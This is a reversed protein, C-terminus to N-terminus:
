GSLRHWVTGAPTDNLGIGSQQLVERLKDAAVYDRRDKAADRQAILGKQRRTLDERGALRLGLLEDALGLIETLRITCDTDVAPLDDSLRALLALVGATDLDDSIRELMAKKMARAARKDLSRGKELPQLVLDGLARLRQLFVVAAGLAEWTFNVQSRYHSQLMLLRFALPEFGRRVLDDLTYFNRLSKSMKEGEVTMFENHLWLRAFPKGSAAESQAIENTHHVPIHDVGGAHIDITPGLYKIAMASCEVHWGPWGKGWPSDWEMDRKVGSPTFKWLAFDAPHRKQANAAVRAGAKMGALDLRAMRGYGAFKTVDFYVGDDIRYTYGKAELKKVLDIQETIHDTAKPMVTPGVINLREMGTLFEATYLRAIDWASKRAKAAAAALKDEGEDADSTLHGVDTINWVHDVRLGNARLMRALTDYFIFARWNGIHPHDYVTLGCTYLSAKGRKQPKLPQKAFGDTNTLLIKAV